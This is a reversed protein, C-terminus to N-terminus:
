RRLLVQLPAVAARRHARAPGRGGHRAGRRSAASGPVARGHEVELCVSHSAFAEMVLRIARERPEGDLHVKGSAPPRPPTPRIVSRMFIALAYSFANNAPRM